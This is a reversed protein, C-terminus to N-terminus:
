EQSYHLGYKRILAEYEESFTKGKHHEHQNKIYQTVKELQSESVSFAAYGRGWSFKNKGILEQNIYHSSAGKYWQTVDSICFLVPLDILAHIHDPNVYNISMFIQKEKSYNFLFQSVKKGIDGTLRKERNYTGWIM